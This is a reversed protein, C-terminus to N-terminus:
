PAYFDFYRALTGEGANRVHDNGDGFNPNTEIVANSFVHRETLVRGKWVEMMFCANKGSFRGLSDVVARYKTNIVLRSQELRGPVVEAPRAMQLGAASRPDLSQIATTRAFLGLSGERMKAGRQNYQPAIDKTSCAFFPTMPAIAAAISNPALVGVAFARRGLTSGM